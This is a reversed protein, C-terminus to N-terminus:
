AKAELADRMARITDHLQAIEAHHAASAAQTADIREQAAKELSTRLAVITDRLQPIDGQAASVADQV